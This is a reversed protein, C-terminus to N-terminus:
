EGAEGGRKPEGRFWGFGYREMEELLAGNAKPMEGATYHLGFIFQAASIFGTEVIRARAKAALEPGGTEECATLLRDV